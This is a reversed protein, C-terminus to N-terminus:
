AATTTITGGGMQVTVNNAAGSGVDVGIRGVPDVTPNNLTVTLDESASVNYTIGNTYPDDIAPTNLVADAGCTVQGNAVSGCENDAQVASGSFLVAATAVVSLGPAISAVQGKFKTLRGGRVSVNHSHLAPQTDSSQNTM